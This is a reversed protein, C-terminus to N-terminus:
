KLRKKIIDKEDLKVTKELKKIDEEAPIEEPKIGRELLLERIGQNNKMHEQTIGEEGELNEKKVNFNTIETALNKATITITPLFDALTRKVDWGLEKRESEEEKLRQFDKILFLKFEVSIWSAFEFAIDKHAFTGGYRGPKSTIGIAKTKEIWQKVPLIFSNLGAQKRFEDFEIPNFNSNNIKEWLGLFELTNRNRLWNHIIYDSRESDKYKAIDTLSIYDESEKFDISVEKGLEIVKKKM